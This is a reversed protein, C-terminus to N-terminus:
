FSYSVGLYFVRRGYHRWQTRHSYDEAYIARNQNQRDLINRVSAFLILMSREGLFWVKNYSLDLTQYANYHAAGYEGWLPIIQDPTTFSGRIPTYALGPHALFALSFKGWTPSTYCIVSKVLYNMRNLADYWTGGIKVRAWLYTYSASIYFNGLQKSISLEGGAMRRTVSDARYDTADVATTKEQKYYLASQLELENYRYTYDLAAQQSYATRYEWINYQPTTHGWYQGLSLLLAHHPLFAYRANAQASLRNPQGFVPLQLRGGLGCTLKQAFNHKLYLYSELSRFLAMSDRKVTPSEPRQAFYYKPFLGEQRTQEDTFIVGAELSLFSPNYKLITSAYSNQQHEQLDINGLRYHMKAQDYGANTVWYLEGFHAEINLVNFNRKNRYRVEGHYGYTHTQAAYQEGIAYSYLNLAVRKGLVTHANIAGDLSGFLSLGEAKTKTNLALFAPSYMYNAYLQVFSHTGLPQSHLVSATALSAVVSTYRAALERKTHIEVAGALANTFALPANSAYTNQRDIFETSFLSFAGTGDLEANRVPHYIPVNNFVVRSFAGASGRLEPEAGETTNTSAPHSTVVKLVDASARPDNYIDLVKLEKVSFERTTSPSAVIYTDALVYNEEKLVIVSPLRSTGRLPIIVTHYGIYSVVLTDQLDEKALVLQFQGEPDTIAGVQAHQKLYVNVAFLPAGTKDAVRAQLTVSQACLASSVCLSLLLIYIHRGGM